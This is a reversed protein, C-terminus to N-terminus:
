VTYYLDNGNFYCPKEFLVLRSIKIKRHLFTLKCKFKLLLMSVKKPFSIVLLSILVM